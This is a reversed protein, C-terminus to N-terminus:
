YPQKHTDTETYSAHHGKWEMLPSIAISQSFVSSLLLFLESVSPFLSVSAKLSCFFYFRHLFIFLSLLFYVPVDVNLFLLAVRIPHVEIEVSTWSNYHLPLFSLWWETLKKKVVGGNYCHPLISWIAPNRQLHTNSFTWHEERREGDCSCLMNQYHNGKVIDAQWDPKLRVAIKEWNFIVGGATLETAVRVGKLCATSKSIM